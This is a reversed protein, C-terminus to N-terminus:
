PSGVLEVADIENWGLGLVSQDITIRLTDFRGETPQVQITLTYPCPQDIQEPPQDYITLPRGFPGVLEVKVVQNPNFSQIINVEAVRVPTPFRVELWTVSDSSASAWATQYDGCRPTDPEGTVQEPGWEPEAFFSGAEAEVAWQRIQRGSQPVREEPLAQEDAPPPDTPAVVPEEAIPAVAQCSLSGLALLLVWLVFRPFRPLM